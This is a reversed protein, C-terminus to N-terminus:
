EKGFLVNYLDTIDTYAVEDSGDACVGLEEANKRLHYYLNIIHIKM